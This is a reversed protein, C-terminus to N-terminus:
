HGLSPRRMAQQRDLVRDAAADVAVVVQQELLIQRDHGLGLQLHHVMERRQRAGLQRLDPPHARMRLRQRM